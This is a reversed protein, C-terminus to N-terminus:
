KTDKKGFVSINIYRGPNDKVDKMLNDLNKSSNNLNNYLEEDNVLLGLSGEGKNIKEVVSHFDKLTQNATEITERVQLDQLDESTKHFNSMILSLTDSNNKLNATISEVNGIISSLRHNENSVLKRIDASIAEVHSLTQTIDHLGSKFEKQFESDLATNVASLVSDLKVILNEIKNQLPEVKEMLNSQVDSLLPDGSQALTTSNGMQFEIAKSGLLDTSIIKAVTNSPVAIKGKIKFETRIKDNDLLTLKSVRGIQYGNVLVPKSESLGDVNDYDTYFTNETSFVDNGRLYSYGLFLLAIAILTLAGVKTENSIKM